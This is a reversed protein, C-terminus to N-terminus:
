PIDMDGEPQIPKRSPKRPTSTPVDDGTPRNKAYHVTPEQLADMAHLKLFVEYAAQCDGAATHGAKNVIGFHQCAEELKPFKLSGNAKVAGVVATASRMTCINKTGEFLDDRGARRLEARMSKCDHQANHAVIIYGAEILAAYADLVEAIPKGHETLYETTLGNISTAEASMSWGDPKVLFDMIADVTLDEKTTIISLAALRPQGEADAPKSYDFLGSGETDVVAYKM